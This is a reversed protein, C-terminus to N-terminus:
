RNWLERKIEQYEEQENLTMEGILKNHLIGYRIQLEETEQAFRIRWAIQNSDKNSADQLKKFAREQWISKIVKLICIVAVVSLPIFWVKGNSLAYIFLPFFAVWLLVFAIDFLIHSMSSEEVEFREISCLHKDQKERYIYFM